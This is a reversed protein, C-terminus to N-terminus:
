TIKLNTNKMNGTKHSWANVKQGQLLPTPDGQFTNNRHNQRKLTEHFLIQQHKEAKWTQRM